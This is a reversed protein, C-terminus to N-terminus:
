LSIIEKCNNELDQVSGQLTYINKIQNTTRPIDVNKKNYLTEVSRSSKMRKHVPNLSKILEDHPVMNKRYM